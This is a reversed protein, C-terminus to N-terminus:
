LPTPIERTREDLRMHYLHNWGTSQKQMSVMKRPEHSWRPEEVTFLIGPPHINNARFLFRPSATSNGLSTSLCDLRLHRGSSWNLQIWILVHALFICGRAKKKIKLSQSHRRLIVYQVSPKDYYFLHLLREQSVRYRLSLITSRRWTNGPQMSIWLM